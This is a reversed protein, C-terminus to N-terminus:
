RVVLINCAMRKVVEHLRDARSEVLGAEVVLLRCGFEGMRGPLADLEPSAVEIQVRVTNADLQKAIWQELDKAQAIAPPCIVILLGDRFEAIQAATQILRVSALGRDGLLMAVSGGRDWSGQALLFPGPALEIASWWRCEVRFGGGVPRTLANAVVLDHQTASLLAHESGGRVIEFSSTVAHRKAAAALDRRAREASTRLHLEVQQTTFPEAGAALTIQRAFPLHALRLLDEDEVFVGHVSAKARAALRVATDITTRNESAADLPVVVREIMLSM